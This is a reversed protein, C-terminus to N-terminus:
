PQPLPKPPEKHPPTDPPVQTIQEESFGRQTTGQQRGIQEVDPDTATPPQGRTPKGPEHRETGEKRPAPAKTNKADQQPTKTKM